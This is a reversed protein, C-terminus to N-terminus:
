LLLDHIVIHINTESESGILRKVYMFDFRPLGNINNSPYVNESIFVRDLIVVLFSHLHEVWVLRPQEAPIM